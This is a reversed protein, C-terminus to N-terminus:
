SPVKAQGNEAWGYLQEMDTRGAFQVGQVVCKPCLGQARPMYWERRRKHENRAGRECDDQLCLIFLRSPTRKRRAPAAAAEGANAPSLAVM